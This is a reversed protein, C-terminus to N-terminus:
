EKDTHEYWHMKIYGASSNDDATFRIAYTENDDLVHEEAGRDQTGEGKNIFTYWDERCTGSGTLTPNVILTQNTASFAAQNLDELLISTNASDHNNNGILTNTGTGQTWTAGKLIELHAASGAAYALVVHAKKTGTPTKFAMILTDNVSMATDVCSSVFHSGGHTEHHEYSIYTQAWTMNDLGAPGSVGDYLELKRLETM